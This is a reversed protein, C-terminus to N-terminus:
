PQSVKLYIPSPVGPSSRLSKFWIDFSRLFEDFFCIVKDKGKRHEPSEIRRKEFAKKISDKQWPEGKLAFPFTSQGFLQQSTHSAAEDVGHVRGPEEM